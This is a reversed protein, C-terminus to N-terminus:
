KLTNADGGATGYGGGSGSHCSQGGGGGGYTRDGAGNAGEGQGGLQYTGGAGAGGRFGKGDVNIQGGSQIDVTGTARFVVLGGSSGDWDNSTLTGGSSITVNTWQPVRQVVVKQGGFSTGDYSNAITENVNLTTGDPVSAITLFEHNGADAADSATGQLNILIIEDGAALGTTSSVSISTGTPSATVTTVIGDAYSSRNSGLVDTNINKSAGINVSGDAGTGFSVSSSLQVGGDVFTDSNSGTNFDPDTDHVIQGARTTPNFALCLAAWVLVFGRGFSNRSVRNM